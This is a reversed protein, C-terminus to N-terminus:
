DHPVVAVPCHVHHLCAQAVSGIRTGIPARRTRRGVVLLQAGEAAEVLVHGPNGMEVQAIVPVEPFRERWPALAKELAAQELATTGGSQGPPGLPGPTYIYVPPLSWARLARVTAGRAAATEFAFRLVESCEEADGQQGVVVERRAPSDTGARVAVVPRPSSGIVRRGCSGLLYGTLAGLGRSGIVLMEAREAAKLLAPSASEGVAESSLRVKPYRESLEKEALNLLDKGAQEQVDPPRVIPVDVPQWFWAHVLHVPLERRVAEEAAWAAAAMSEESGDVGVVIAREM